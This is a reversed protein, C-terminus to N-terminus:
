KLKNAWWNKFNIDNEILKVGGHSLTNFDAGSFYENHKWHTNYFEEVDARKYATRHKVKKESWDLYKVFLSLLYPGGVIVALIIFINIWNM